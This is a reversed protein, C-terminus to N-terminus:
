LLGKIEYGNGNFTGSYPGYANGGFPVWNYNDSSLDISNLLEINSNLYHSQNQDVYILQAPTTIEVWGQSNVPPANSSSANAAPFPLNVGLLLLSVVLAVTVSRLRRNLAYVGM